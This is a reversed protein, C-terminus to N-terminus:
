NNQKQALILLFAFSALSFFSKLFCFFFLCLLYLFVALICPVQQIVVEVYRVSIIM